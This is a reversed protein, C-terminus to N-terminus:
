RSIIKNLWGSNKQQQLGAEDPYLREILSKMEQAAKCTAFMEMMMKGAKSAKIYNKPDFPIITEIEQDISNQFDNIDVENQVLGNKSIAVHIKIEPALKQIFGIMRICDRASVLSLDTVLLVDQMDTLADFQETFLQRPIEIIVNTFNECLVNSLHKLSGEPPTTISGLPAESALISLYQNPQVVARELFLNDVRAPNELADTLGRGPELDFQLAATSYHLDMDLLMTRQDLNSLYWAINAAITSAGIGGRLGIIALHLSSHPGRKEDESPQHLAHEANEIAHKIADPNLPKLLYDQVGANILDRFLSVDNVTGVSVVATDPECVEALAQMDSRPDNSESLDVVLVRPCPSSALSRVAGVVGGNHIHGNKWGKEELVSSFLDSSHQDNLYASFIPRDKQSAITAKAM